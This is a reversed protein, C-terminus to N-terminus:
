RREAQALSLLVDTRSLQGIWRRPDAPDVVPLHDRDQRAFLELARGLTADAPVAALDPQMVDAATVLRALEPTHLHPDLERMSLAGALRGQADVVELHTSRQRLYRRAVEDLPAAEAVGEPPPKMLEGVTLTAPPAPNEARKHALSRSYMSAPEVARGTFYALVAGLMLPLVIDYDLTMESLMLIAMLPAHTAAALFCGMGVLAYAEPPATVNPWLAHVVEGYLSGLGVGLFLAPTFVGGAAGSGVTAATALFKGAVLAVLAAPAWADALIQNVVGYGNGWVEPLGLSIAGTILGGAALRSWVPGPLGQFWGEIVRLARIFLAATGGMLLGLGLYLLLEQPSELSFMPRGFLPEAGLLERSVLTGVVSACLLPGFTEMAITGLVIEAIFLAGAIPANYVSAIGAAGGCAVMLRLRAPSLRLVRGVASALVAGMQVVPGERGISGGSANTLLASLSKVLSPRARVVGDGIVIAEMYDTARQGRLLRNGLYLALGALLGGLAPTLARRWPPLARAADVIDGHFGTFLPILADLAERFLWYAVASFAGVLGAYFLTLHIERPQILRRLRWAWRFWRGLPTRTM